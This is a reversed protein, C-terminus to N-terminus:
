KPCLAVLDVAASRPPFVQCGIGPAFYERTVDYAIPAMIAVDWAWRDLLAAAADVRAQGSLAGLEGVREYEEAGVDIVGSTPLLDLYRVPDSYPHYGGTLLRLEGLGALPEDVAELRVDIGVVALDARIADAAQQCAECDAQYTM